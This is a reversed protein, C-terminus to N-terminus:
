ITVYRSEIVTLKFILQYKNTWAWSVGQIFFDASSLNGLDTPDDYTIEIMDGPNAYLFLYMLKSSKNACFTFESYDTRPNDFPTDLLTDSLTQIASADDLYNYRENYEYRGYNEISATDEDEITVDDYFYIGRGRVQSDEDLWGDSGSNNTITLTAESVGYDASVTFDATLDAGTGDSNAHATYDTNAVPTLMDKSRTRVAKQDPDQYTITITQSEGALVEISKNLTWLVNTNTTDIERPTFTLKTANILHKGRSSKADLLDGATDSFSADQTQNLILRDGTELLLYDGDEKLLLDAEDNGVPLKLVTATDRDDRDELAFIEYDGKFHKVYCWGLSSRVIRSITTAARQKPSVRDFVTTFTETDNFDTGGEPDIGVFDVVEELAESATKNEQAQIKGVPYINFNRIYDQAKVTIRRDSNTGFAVTVGEPVIKGHFKYYWDGEYFYSLRVPTGAQLLGRLEDNFVQFQLTGVNAFRDRISSTRIGYGAAHPNLLSLEWWSDGIALPDGYAELKVTCTQTM